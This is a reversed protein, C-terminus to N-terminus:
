EPWIILGRLDVPEVGVIAKRALHRATATASRRLYARVAEVPDADPAVPLSRGILDVRRGAFRPPDPPYRGFLSPGFDANVLWRPPFLGVPDEAYFTFVDFDKVGNEGDVYHLAERASRSASSAIRTRGGGRAAPL